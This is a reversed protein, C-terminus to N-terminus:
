IKKKNKENSKEEVYRGFIFNCALYEFPRYPDHLPDYFTSIMRLIVVLFTIAFYIEKSTFQPIYGLFHFTFLVSALVCSKTSHHPLIFACHSGSVIAREAYKVFMFGSSKSVAFVVPYLLTDPYLDLITKVGTYVLQVRLVDQITCFIFNLRFQVIIRYFIDLPSYFVLYVSIFFSMTMETNTLFSLPPQALLISAVIGGPFTYITSMIAISLPHKKSFDVDDDILTTRLVIAMMICHPIWLSPFAPYLYVYDIVNTFNLM